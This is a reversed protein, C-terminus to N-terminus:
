TCLVLFQGNEGIDAHSPVAVVSGDAFTVTAMGTLHDYDKVIFKVEVRQAGAQIYQDVVIKDATRTDAQHFGRLTWAMYPIFVLVAPIAFGFLRTFFMRVGSCHAFDPKRM